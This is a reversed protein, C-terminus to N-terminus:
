TKFLISGCFVLASPLEHASPFPFFCHFLFKEYLHFFCLLGVQRHFATYEALKILHPTKLNKYVMMEKLIVVAKTSTNLHFSDQTVLIKM